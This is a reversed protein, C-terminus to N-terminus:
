SHESGVHALESDIRDFLDQTKKRTLHAVREVQDRDPALALRLPWDALRRLTRRCIAALTELEGTLQEIPSPAESRPLAAQREARLYLEPRELLLERGREGSELYGGYLKQAERTSLQLRAFLEALRCADEPKARAMPVLLKTAIHSSLAGDRVVHQIAEPLERVLALRRSVWSQTKDFRRALEEQSLGFREQLEVLLWGQEIAGSSESSRMLQELVLAEAQDVEWLTVVAQDISLKKLARVRKYGDIVVYRSQQDAEVVVLPHQQGSDLLSAMLRREKSANKNRLSEFRLELQHLDVQV